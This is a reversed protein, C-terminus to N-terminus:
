NYMAETHYMKTKDQFKSGGLPRGGQGLGIPVNIIEEKFAEFEPSGPAPRNRDAFGRAAADNSPIVGPAGGLYAGAYEQYWTASPKWAENILNALFGAAYSNGSNEATSYARVFFNDGRLELKNQIIVFDRINYRDAGTYVTSGTGANFQYIFEAKDNLRYHLAFNGKLNNANYNVLNTEEYGTRSVRVGAGGAGIPLSTGGSNEDGYINIGNYNLNNTRTGDANISVEGSTNTSTSQDRYDQAQWDKATLYSINFKVAIKNNWAKAYRLSFDYYPSADRQRNDVHMVGVKAQASLGQFQFPSKSNMLVIGNLANPGYLASAAGPLIEVSELDIDSVGIINGVSFNLGPAQSDMGDVMQVVRVQGNANFGRMNVSRFTLSQTNLDVGKVNALADFFNAAPTERVARSDLKEVTVPSQLVSEEVRSASIVVENAMISQEELDINFTTKNGTVEVEQTKFGVFSISLTFPPVSRTSLSFEGKGNTVTGLVTGKVSVNVGIMPEKTESNTIVGSVATEQAMAALSSFFLFAM